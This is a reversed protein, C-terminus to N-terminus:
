NKKSEMYERILFEILKSKDLLKDDIHKEFETYLDPEITFFVKDKRKNKM